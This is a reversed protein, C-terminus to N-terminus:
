RKCILCLGWGDDILFFYVNFGGLCMSIFGLGFEMGVWIKDVSVLGVM